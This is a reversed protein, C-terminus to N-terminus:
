TYKHIREEYEKIVKQREKNDGRQELEHIAKELKHKLKVKGIDSRKAFNQRFEVLASYLKAWEKPKSKSPIQITPGLFYMLASCQQCKVDGQMGISDPRTYTVRRWTPRRKTIRCDFCVWNGMCAM